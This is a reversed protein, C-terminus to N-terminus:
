HQQSSEKAYHLTSDLQQQQPYAFQQQQQPYAFQQRQQPYAFPQQPRTRATFSLFCYLALFCYLKLFCNSSTQSHLQDKLNTTRAATRAASWTPAPAAHAAPPARATTYLQQRHPGV